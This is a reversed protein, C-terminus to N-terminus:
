VLERHQIAHEASEAAEDRSWSLPYDEPHELQDYVIDGDHNYIVFYYQEGIENIRYDVQERRKDRLIQAMAAFAEPHKTQMKKRFALQREDLEEDPTIPPIKM